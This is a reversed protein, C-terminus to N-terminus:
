SRLLSSACFFYVPFHWLVIIVKLLQLRDKKEQLTNQLVTESLKSHVADLWEELESCQKSFPVWSTSAQEMMQEAASVSEIFADWCQHLQRLQQRVADRGESSTNAYLANSCESAATLKSQGQDRNAM